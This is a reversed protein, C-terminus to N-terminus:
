EAPASTEVASDVPTMPTEPLDVGVAEEDAPTAILEGGSLDVTEVETTPEAAEEKQCAALAFAGALALVAATRAPIPRM